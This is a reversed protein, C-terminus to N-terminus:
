GVDDSGRKQLARQLAEDVREVADRQINPMLHSYIDMTTAITSHGLREQVIKPHINSALMHSAHSHRTSHLKIRRLTHVGLLRKWEQTLSRPQLPSGDEKAVVHQDRKMRVGIRLLEEAQRTKHARLEIVVQKSLAITRHRKGKTEKERCNKKGALQETSAVVALQDRDLDVSHWRLAAIEGRRLGCLMGLVTPIFMRTPRLTELVQVAEDTDYTDPAKRELKPPKVADAPNRYLLNWLVAQKLAHRIIRHMYVVTAPSLGGKGDRRGNTLAKAYAQSIHPPQLNKLVISGLAPIINNRVIECYREFTRPSIQIQVHSLWQELYEGVTTRSPELYTGARLQSVLRACEDQAQRKTGAFSHWKRKRKGSQPDRIELVIAWHGPSRERIHGKM